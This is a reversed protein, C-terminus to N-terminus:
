AKIADAARAESGGPARGASAAQCLDALFQERPLRYTTIADELTCFVTMYCGACALRYKMFVPLVAPQDSLVQEITADRAITYEDM